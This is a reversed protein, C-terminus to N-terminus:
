VSYITPLTLHTYSVPNIVKNKTLRDLTKGLDQDHTSGLSIVKWGKQIADNAVDAFYEIPWRKAEGYEAGPAIGLVKDSLSLKGRLLKKGHSPKSILYTSLSPKINKSKPALALYQDVTRYLAPDKKICDNILGFRM